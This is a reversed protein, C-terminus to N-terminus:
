TMRELILAAEGALQVTSAGGLLAAGHEDTATCGLARDALPGQPARGGTLPTVPAQGLNLVVLVCQGDITREFAVLDPEETSQLELAGVQLAPTVARLAILRRYLSLISDPDGLQVAVNRTATDPGFRLWPKGTTFGAGPDGSWPMPTRSRSRDWWTFDPGVNKAPPDVSEDPPIDVDGLGLEEGYYLFPTGRLTLLLVAAARAVADQDTAGISRAFRSAHRPQDHNSMVATPWRDAGFATERAVIAARVADGTWATGILEWDFVLHRDTALSAATEITGDFLEGVSM